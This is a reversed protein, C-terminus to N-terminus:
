SKKFGKLLELGKKLNTTTAEAQEAKAEAAKAVDEALEISEMIGALRHVASQMKEGVRVLDFRATEISRHINALDSRASEIKKAREQMGKRTPDVLILWSFWGTLIVLALGCFSLVLTLWYQNEHTSAIGKENAESLVKKRAEAMSPPCMMPLEFLLKCAAAQDLDRRFFYEKKWEVEAGSKYEQLEKNLQDVTSSLHQKDTELQKIVRDDCGSLSVILLLFILRALPM